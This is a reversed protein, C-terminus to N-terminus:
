FSATMQYDVINSYRQKLHKTFDNSNNENIMNIIIRHFDFVFYM